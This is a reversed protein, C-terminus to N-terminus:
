SMGGSNTLPFCTRVNEDKAVCSAVDIIEQYTLDLVPPEGGGTEETIVKLTAQLQGLPRMYTNTM